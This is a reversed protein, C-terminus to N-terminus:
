NKQFNNGKAKDQKRDETQVAYASVRTSGNSAMNTSAQNIEGVDINNDIAIRAKHIIQKMTAIYNNTTHTDSSMDRLETLENTYQRRLTIDSLKDVLQQATAFDLLYTSNLRTIKALGKEFFNLMIKDTKYTQSAPYARLEEMTRRLYLEENSSYLAFTELCGELSESTDVIHVWEMSVCTRLFSLAMQDSSGALNKRWMQIM